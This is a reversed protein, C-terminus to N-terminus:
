IYLYHMVHKLGDRLTVADSQLAFTTFVIGVRSHVLKIEEDIKRFNPLIYLVSQKLVLNRQRVQQIRSLALLWFFLKSASKIYKETLSKVSSQRVTKKDERKDFKERDRREMGVKKDKESHIKTTQKISEKDSKMQKLDRSEHTEAEASKDQVHIVNNVNVLKENQIFDDSTEFNSTTVRSDTVRRDSHTFQDLVAREEKQIKHISYM